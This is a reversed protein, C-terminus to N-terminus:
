FDLPDVFCLVALVLDTSVRHQTLSLVTARVRQRTCPPHLRHLEPRWQWVDALTAVITGGDWVTLSHKDLLYVYDRLMGSGMAGPLTVPISLGTEFHLLNIALSPFLSVTLTHPRDDVSMVQDFVQPMSTPCCSHRTCDWLCNVIDLRCIRDDRALFIHRGSYIVADARTRTALVDDSLDCRLDCDGTAPELCWVQFDEDLLMVFGGHPFTSRLSLTTTDEMGGFFQVRMLRWSKTNVDFLFYTAMEFMPIALLLNSHALVVAHRWSISFIDPDCHYESLLELSQAEPDLQFVAIHGETAIWQDFQVLLLTQGWKLVNHHNADPTPKLTCVHWNWKSIASTM